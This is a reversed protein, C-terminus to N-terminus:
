KKKCLFVVIRSALFINKFLNCIPVDVFNFLIRVKCGQYPVKNSGCAEDKYYKRSYFVDKSSRIRCFLMNTLLNNINEPLEIDVNLYNGLQEVIAYKTSRKSCITIAPYNLESLEINGKQIIAPNEDWIFLQLVIFYFAWIIGLIGITAWCIKELICSDKCILDICKIIKLENGFNKLKAGMSRKNSYSKILKFGNSKKFYGHRTDM